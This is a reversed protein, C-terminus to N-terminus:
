ACTPPSAAASRAGHDTLRHCSILTLSTVLPCSSALAQVAADGIDTNGSLDVTRLSRGATLAFARVGADTLWECGTVV